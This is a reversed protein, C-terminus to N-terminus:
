HGNAEKTAGTEGETGAPKGDTEEPEAKVAAVCLIAEEKAEATTKASSKWEFYKM